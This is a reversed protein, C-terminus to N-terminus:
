PRVGSLAVGVTQGPATPSPALTALTLQTGGAALPSLYAIGSSALNQHTCPNGGHTMVVNFVNKGTGRPVFSGSFGCTAPAIPTGSFGGAGDVSLTYRHGALDAVTWDFNLRSLVAAASYDYAPALQAVSNFTSTTTADTISGSISRATANYSASAIANGGLSPPKPFNRAGSALFFTGNSTGTGQAFGEVRWSSSAVPRTGYFTWFQGNELVLMQFLTSSGPLVPNGPQPPNDTVVLHGAYFGEASPGSLSGATDDGGGCGVLGALAVLSVVLAASRKMLVGLYFLVVSMRGPLHVCAINRPRDGTETFQRQRAGVFAVRTVGLPLRSRCLQPDM